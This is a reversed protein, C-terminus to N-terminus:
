RSTCCGGRKGCRREGVGAGDDFPSSLPMVDENVRVILVLKWERGKAGHITSLTVGSAKGGSARGGAHEYESMASQELFARLSGIRDMPPGM